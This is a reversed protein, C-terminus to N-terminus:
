ADDLTATVNGFLVFSGSNGAAPLSPLTGSFTGTGNGNDNITVAVTITNTGDSISLPSTPPTGPTFGLYSGSIASGPALSSQDITVAPALVADAFAMAWNFIVPHGNADTGSDDYNVTFVTTHSNTPISDTKIVRIHLNNSTYPGTYLALSDGNNHTITGNGTTFNYDGSRNVCISYGFKNQNAGYSATTTKAATQLTLDSDPPTEHYPTGVQDVEFLTTVVVAELQMSASKTISVTQAGSPIDAEKIYFLRSYAYKNSWVLEFSNSLATAAQAGLSCGTITKGGATDRCIVALVVIRNSGASATYSYSTFNDLYQTNNATIAM